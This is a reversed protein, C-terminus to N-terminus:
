SIEKSQAGEFKFHEVWGTLGYLLGEGNVPFVFYGLNKKKSTSQMKWYELM